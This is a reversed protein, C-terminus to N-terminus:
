AHHAAALKAVDGSLKMVMRDDRNISTAMGGVRPAPTRSVGAPRQAAYRGRDNRVTRSPRAARSPVAYSPGSESNVETGGAGATEGSQAVRSRWWSSTSAVSNDVETRITIGCVPIGVTSPGSWRARHALDDPDGAFRVIPGVDDVAVRRAIEPTSRSPARRVKAAEPISFIVPAPADHSMPGARISESM